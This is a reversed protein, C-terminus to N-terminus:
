GWVGVLPKWGASTYVNIIPTAPNSTDVWIDGISPAAPATTSSNVLSTQALKQFNLRPLNPITTSGDGIVLEDKDTQHSFVLEGYQPVVNAYTSSDLNKSTDQIRKVQIVTYPASM